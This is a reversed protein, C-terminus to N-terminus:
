MFESIVILILLRHRVELMWSEVRVVGVVVELEVMEVGVEQGKMVLVV